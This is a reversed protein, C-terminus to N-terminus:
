AHKLERPRALTLVMKHSNNEVTFTYVFDHSDEGFNCQPAKEINLLRSLIEDYSRAFM